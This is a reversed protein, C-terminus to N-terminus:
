ASQDTALYDPSLTRDDEGRVLISNIVAEVGPVGRALRGARARAARTRVWGHLEVTGSAVPTVELGLERLEPDAALAAAVARASGAASLAP